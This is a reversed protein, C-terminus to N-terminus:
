IWIWIWSFPLCWFFFAWILHLLLLGIGSIELIQIIQLVVFHLTTKLFLLITQFTGYTFLYRHVLV